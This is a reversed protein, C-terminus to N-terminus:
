FDTFAEGENPDSHEDPASTPEATPAATPASTPEATPAATPASTPEATPAATPAKTPETIPIVAETVAPSVTQDGKNPSGMYILSLLLIALIIIIKEIM